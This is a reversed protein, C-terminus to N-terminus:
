SPVEFRFVTTGLQFQDGSRLQARGVIARGNVMTGNTSDLDVLTGSAAVRAHHTSVTSDDLVVDNDAGRGFRLGNGIVFPVGVRVVDSHTVVVRPEPLGADRRAKAVDAVPIITSDQSAGQRVSAAPTRLLDRRAARMVRWIFVYILVVVAIQGALLHQQIV